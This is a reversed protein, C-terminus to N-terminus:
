AARNKFLKDIENAFQRNLRAKERARVAPLAKQAKYRRFAAQIQTAARNKFLKDFENAFQRNLRPKERERIAPLDKKAKYRRFAAQIRTASAYQLVNRNAYYKRALQEITMGKGINKNINSNKYRKSMRARTKNEIERISLIYRNVLPLNYTPPELRHVRFLNSMTKDPIRPDGRCGSIFLMCKRSGAEASAGDVLQQLYKTEGYYARRSMEGIRYGGCIGDYKTYLGSQRVDEETGKKPDFFELAHNASYTGPPYIHHTWDWKKTRIITPIKESPLTGRIMQLFLKRSTLINIFEQELTDFINGWYGPPTFFVVYVNPPILVPPEAPLHTGHGISVYLEFKGVKEKLKM